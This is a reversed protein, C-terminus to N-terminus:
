NRVNFLKNLEDYTEKSIDLILQYKTDKKQINKSNFKKLSKYAFSKIGEIPKENLIFSIKRQNMTKNIPNEM